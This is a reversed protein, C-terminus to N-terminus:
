KEIELYETLPKKLLEEYEKEVKQMDWTENQEYKLPGQAAEQVTGVVYPTGTESNTEVVYTSGDLEVLVWGHPYKEDGWILNGRGMKVKFGKEKLYKMIIASKEGCTLQRYEFKFNVKNLAEKLKDIPQNGLLWQYLSIWRTTKTTEIQVLNDEYGATYTIIQTEQILPTFLIFLFTITLIIPYYLKKLPM